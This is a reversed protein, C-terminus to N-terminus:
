RAAVCSGTAGPEDARIGLWNEIEDWGLVESVYRSMTQNKLHITCLRQMQNPLYYGKDIILQKFPEGKRSATEFSVVKYSKKGSYELWIIEIGWHLAIDRVFELTAEKELGTNQFIVKCNEPLKGNYAQVLLWLLYGSTRGGSFSIVTNAVVKM